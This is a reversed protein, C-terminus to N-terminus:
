VVSVQCREESVEVVFLIKIQHQLSKRIAAKLVDLLFLLKRLFLCCRNYPLDSLTEFVHMVLIDDM